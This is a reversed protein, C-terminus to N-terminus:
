EVTDRSNQGTTQIFISQLKFLYMKYNSNDNSINFEAGNNSVKGKDTTLISDAVKIINPNSKCVVIELVLLDFAVSNRDEIM